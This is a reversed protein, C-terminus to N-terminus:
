RPLPRWGPNLSATSGTEGYQTAAVIHPKAHRAVRRVFVGREIRDYAVWRGDPSWVPLAGDKVNGLRALGRGSPRVTFLGGALWGGPYRIRLARVIVLRGGGPSWDPSGGATVRHAHAGAPGGVWVAGDRVFALRNRSSLVPEAADSVLLRAPGGSVPRVYVAAGGEDSMGTFVIRRGDPAFAPDSDDGTVAPLLRLNAGDADVVALQAGADFVIQSGDPSYTPSYFSSVACGPPNPDGGPSRCELLAHGNSAFPRKVYLQGIRDGGDEAANSGGGFYAIPGNRGPFTAAAPTAAALLVLVTLLALRAM